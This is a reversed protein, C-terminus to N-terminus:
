TATAIASWFSIQIISTTQSDSLTTAFTALVYPAGEPGTITTVPEQPSAPSDLLATNKIQDAAAILSPSFTTPIAVTIKNTATTKNGTITELAPVLAYQIGDAGTSYDRQLRGSADTTMAKTTTTTTTPDDPTAHSNLLAADNILICYM